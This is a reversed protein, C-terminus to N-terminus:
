LESRKTVTVPFYTLSSHFGNAILPTSFYSILLAVMVVGIIKIYATTTSDTSVRSAAGPQDRALREPHAIAKGVPAQTFSDLAVTPIMDGVLTQGPIRKRNYGAEEMALEALTLQKEKHPIATSEPLPIDIYRDQKLIPVQMSFKGFYYKKMVKMKTTDERIQRAKNVAETTAVKRKLREAQERLTQEEETESKIQSVYLIDVLKMWPGFITWVIIRSTWQIIWFWPVFLCVVSLVICGTAIWFSFFTEQWIIINKIFRIGRCLVALMLQIPFLAARVPDISLGGSGTKTGLDGNTEGIEELEKQREEEDQQAQAYAREAKKAADEVRNVWAEMEKKAEEFKEYPAINAPPVLSNGFLIMRMIEFYSYCHQWINESNRRWGMVAILIWAISLFGFSPLLQPHEVLFTSFIFANLSHLPVTIEHGFITLEFHGRWLFLTKAADELYFLIYQLEQLEEVYSKLTSVSYREEDVNGLCTERIVRFDQRTKVNVQKSILLTLPYSCTLSM